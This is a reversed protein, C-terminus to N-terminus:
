KQNLVVEYIAQKCDEFFAASFDLINKLDDNNIFIMKPYAPNNTFTPNNIRAVEEAIITVLNTCDIKDTRIVLTLEALNDSLLSINLGVEGYETKELHIFLTDKALYRFGLPHLSITDIIDKRSVNCKLSIKDNSLQCFKYYRDSFNISQFKLLLQESLEQKNM